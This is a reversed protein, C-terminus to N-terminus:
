IELILRIEGVVGAMWNGSPGNRGSGIADERPM